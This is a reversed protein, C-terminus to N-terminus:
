PEVTIETTRRTLASGQQVSAVIKYKGPEFSSTKTTLLFPIRGRDDADPLAPTGRSLMEGDHWYEVTLAPKERTNQDPYVVFFLSFTPSESVKVAHDLTPTIRGQGFDFLNPGASMEAQEHVTRVNMMASMGPGEAPAAINIRSRRIGTRNRLRDAIAVSLEYDGPPADFRERFIFRGQQVPALRGEPITLPVDQSWRQVVQGSSDKLLALMSVHATFRDEVRTFQIPNMPLEIVVSSEMQGDPGKDFQVTGANFALDNKPAPNSLMALLTVEYPLVLPRGEVPPLAYYGARAQVRAGPRNVRVATAHFSGDYTEIEPAYTLEYYSHMEEDIRHIPRRMDNTDSVVFGGTAESLKWLANRDNSRLAMTGTDGSLVQDRSPMQTSSAEQQNRSSELAGALKENGRKSEPTTILGRSDLSYISVGARNATSITARYLEELYDPIVLGENFFLIAKRGEFGMQARCLEMLATITPRSTREYSALEQREMLGLLNELLRMKLRSEARNDSQSIVRIQELAQQRIGQNKGPGQNLIGRITRELIETETVYTQLSAGATAHEVAQRLTALDQTFATLAHLAGRSVFVAYYTSEDPKTKLLDLAAQRALRRGDDGLNDFVLSVLHTQPLAADTRDNPSVDSPDHVAASRGHETSPPKAGSVFRVSRVSRTKGADTLTFDAATLNPMVRGDKGRVIVDIVVEEATARVTSTQAPLPLSIFLLAAYAATKRFQAGMIM